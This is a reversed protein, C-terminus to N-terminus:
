GVDLEFLPYGSAELEVLFVGLRDAVFSFSIERARPVGVFLDYGGHIHLEDETDSIITITVTDGLSVEVVPEVGTVFGEAYVIDIVVDADAPDSLVTTPVSAGSCAVLVVAM